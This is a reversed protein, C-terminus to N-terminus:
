PAQLSLHTWHQFRYANSQVEPVIQIHHVSNFLRSAADNDQNIRTEKDLRTQDLKTTLQKELAAITGHQLTRKRCFADNVPLCDDGIFLHLAKSLLQKELQGKGKAGTGSVARELIAGASYVAEM